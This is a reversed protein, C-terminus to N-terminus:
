DGGGLFRGGQIAATERATREHLEVWAAQCAAITDPDTVPRGDPDSFRDGPHGTWKRGDPGTFRRPKSYYLKRAGWVFLLVAVLSGGLILIEEM